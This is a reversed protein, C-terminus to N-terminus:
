WSDFPLATMRAKDPDPRMYKPLLADGVAPAPASLERLADIDEHNNAARSAELAPDRELVNPRMRALESKPRAAAQLLGFDLLSSDWLGDDPTRGTAILRDRAADGLRDFELAQLEHRMKDRMADQALLAAYAALMAAGDRPSCAALCLQHARPLLARIEVVAKTTARPSCNYVQSAATLGSEIWIWHADCM